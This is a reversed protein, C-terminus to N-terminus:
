KLGDQGSDGSTELVSRVPCLDRESAMFGVQLRVKSGSLDVRRYGGFSGKEDTDDHEIGILLHAADRNINFEGAEPDFCFAEIGRQGSSARVFTAHLYFVEGSAEDVLVLDPHGCTRSVTDPKKVSGCRLGKMGDLARLLADEFSASAESLRATGMSTPAHGNMNVLVQEVAGDLLAMVREGSEMQTLPVVRKGSVVEVVMPFDFTRGNRKELLLGKLMARDAQHNAQKKASVEAKKLLEGQVEWRPLAPQKPERSLVFVLLGVGLGGFVIQLIRRKMM